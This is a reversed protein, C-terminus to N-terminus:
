NNIKYFVERFPEIPCFLKKILRRKTITVIEKSVDQYKQQIENVNRQQKNKSNNKDDSISFKNNKM